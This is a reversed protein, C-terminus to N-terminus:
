LPFLFDATFILATWVSLFLHLTFAVQHNLNTKKFSFTETPESSSSFTDVSAGQQINVDCIM